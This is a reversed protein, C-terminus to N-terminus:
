LVCGMFVADIAQADVGARTVAARIAVAGLAPAGLASLAGRFEGLATRAQGVIVVPDKM